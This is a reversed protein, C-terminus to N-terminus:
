DLLIVDSKSTEVHPNTHPNIYIMRVNPDIVLQYEFEQQDFRLTFVSEKEVGYSEVLSLGTSSDSVSLVKNLATEGNIELVVEKDYFDYFVVDIMQRSDGVGDDSAIRSERTDSCGVAAALVTVFALKM